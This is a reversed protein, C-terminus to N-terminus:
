KKKRFCEMCIAVLKVNKLPQQLGLLGKTLVTVYGLARGCKRCRVPKDDSM